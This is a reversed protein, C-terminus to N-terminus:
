GRGKLGEWKMGRRTIQELQCVAHSAPALESPILTIATVEPNDSGGSLAVCTCKPRFRDITLTDDKANASSVFGLAVTLAVISIFVKMSFRTTKRGRGGKSSLKLLPRAMTMSRDIFGWSSSLLAYHDATPLLLLLKSPSKQAIGPGNPTVNGAPLRPAHSSVKKAGM